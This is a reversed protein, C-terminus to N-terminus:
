EKMLKGIFRENNENTILVLYIGKALISSNISTEKGTFKETLVIKGTYDLLQILYKGEEPCQVFFNNQTPNPYIQASLNGTNAKIGTTNPNVSIYALQALSDSCTVGAQTKRTTLRVNYVGSNVFTYVPNQVFSSYNFGTFPNNFLWEYLGPQGTSNDYFNVTLPATGSTPNASFQTVPNPKVILKISDTVSCTSDPNWVQVIYNGSDKEFVQQTTQGTNWHYIIGSDNISPTIQLTANSGNCITVPSTVPQLSIKKNVTIIISDRMTCGMMDYMFVTYSIIRKSYNTNSNTDTINITSTTDPLNFTNGSESKAWQYHMTGSPNQPQSRLVTTIQYCASTDNSVSGPTLQCINVTDWKTITCANVTLILRVVYTGNQAFMHTFIPTSFNTSNTLTFVGNNSGSVTWQYTGSTGTDSRIFQYKRAFESLISRKIYGSSFGVRIIATRVAFGKIQCNNDSVKFQFYYPLTSVHQPGPIWCFVASDERLVSATANASYLSSGYPLLLATVFTTDIKPSITDKDRAFLTFCFPSSACATFTWPGNKSGNIELEPPNNPSCNYSYFQADRRIVSVKQYTGNVLRWETIKFSITPQQQGMITFGLDGTSKNLNFGAPFSLNYNPFGLFNFPKLSDFSNIFGSPTNEGALSNVLETTISDHDLSDTAGNNFWQPQGNCIVALPLSRFKPSENLFCRNVEADVYFNGGPMNTINGNRCCEQFAVRLWCCSNLSAQFFASDVRLTTDYIHEEIGFPFSGGTCASQQGNCLFSVPAFSKRYISIAKPTISPCSISKITVSVPNSLPIGTCDRYLKLIIRLSDNAKLQYEIAGGVMHSADVKTVFILFLLFLLLHKLRSAM